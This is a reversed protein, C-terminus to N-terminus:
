GISVNSALYTKFSCMVGCRQIPQQITAAPTPSSASYTGGEDGMSVLVLGAVVLLTAIIKGTLTWGSFQESLWSPKWKTIVYAGIFIIAYRVGSIADVIAPSARSIAFFVLFSGVGSIFRNVFYWFRSKPSSKESSEFIQERWTKRALLLLTCLFTGVTFLVFGTVFDTADFVMKQLVNTLGFFGSALLVLPLMSKVDTKESFFMVFGGTVMLAFGTLSSEGFPQKLLPLAILATALPSFGGMIALAQSAEGAALAAYYFYSSVLELAGAFIALLAISASPRHFGLVALLVGLASMAGLWFVYNMVNRTAPQRLLIKDWVLSAGILSHAIIAVFVGNKLISM